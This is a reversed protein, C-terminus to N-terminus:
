AMQKRTYEVTDFFVDGFESVNEAVATDIRSPNIDDTGTGFMASSHFIHPQNYLEPYSFRRQYASSFM